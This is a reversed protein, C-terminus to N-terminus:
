EEAHDGGVAEFIASANEFIKEAAETIEDPDSLLELDIAIEILRVAAHRILEAAAPTVATTTTM